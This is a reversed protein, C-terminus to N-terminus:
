REKLFTGGPMKFVYGSTSKMNSDVYGIIDLDHSNDYVLM